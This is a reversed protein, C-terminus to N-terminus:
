EDGEDSRPGDVSLCEKLQNRARHLRTLVTAQKLEMVEAIEGTTYGMLVQLVLPERYEDPLELLQARLDDVDTDHSSALMGEERGSLDDVDVTDLQKREFQRANERRVITLLWQKAAGDDRLSDLNRWARVMAEQVVDEALAGDRSLWFAYRYMDRRLEGVLREFRHRRRSDESTGKM